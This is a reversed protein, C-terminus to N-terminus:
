KRNDLCNDLLRELYRAIQDVELNVPDGPSLGGLTTVELTHPILNLEFFRGEVRNVTLSVGDLTVSGKHAIYRALSEPAEFRMRRNDGEDHMEVLMAMGDVHGSVLHGGLADGAKLAPELNVTSGSSLRGLSTLNLTEPSADAAFSSPQPDLATLCVGNVAISDGVQLGFGALADASITLRKGGHAPEISEIRGQAKVIGTFM